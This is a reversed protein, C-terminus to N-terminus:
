KSTACGAHHQTLWIIIRLWLMIIRPSLEIIYQFSGRRGRCWSDSWAASEEDGVMDFGPLEKTCLKRIKGTSTTADVCAYVIGAATHTRWRHCVRPVHLSVALSVAATSSAGSGEEFAQEGADQLLMEHVEATGMM